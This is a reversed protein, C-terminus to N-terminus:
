RAPAHIGDIAPIEHRMSMGLGIWEALVEILEVRCKEVTEATAYVGALGPIDGYVRQGADISEFKARRMAAELYTAM